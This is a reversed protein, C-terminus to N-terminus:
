KKSKKHLFMSSSDSCGGREECEGHKSNGPNRGDLKERNESNVPVSKLKEVLKHKFVMIDTKALPGVTYAYVTRGCM